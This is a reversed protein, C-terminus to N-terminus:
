VGEMDLIRDIRFNREAKRKLCFATVGPYAHGLYHFTGVKKPLIERVSKEDNARLYTIRLRTKNQIADKLARTKEALPMRKESAAYQLGTFYKSVRWDAMVHKKLLPTKLVLGDLSRCRSLAVYAQGNAFTGSGFDVVVREFTKGQSKHITLAWALKFPYQTFSGTPQSDISGTKSDYVYRFMNWKHPVVEEKSGDQLEVLATEDEDPLAALRAMTGNIWRGASDNNLMMIQAGKKVRTELPCPLMDLGFKGSLRGKLTVPKGALADLFANNVAEASANRTTLTVYGQDPSPEFSEDCRANLEAIQKEDIANNRIANLLGIFNGDQQRYVKELEVMEFAAADFSSADFFYPSKYKNALVAEDSRNTVPPLQYPDGIFAMQVGGFPKNAVNIRLFRDVCDLLDARVMSIEDIVIADLERYVEGGRGGVRKIKNLTVDPRFGFFSHITQGEVNVAAVGTPALVAVKKKTHRRFHNLLTSKGTGARGTLLVNKETNELLGLGRSFADNFEITLAGM